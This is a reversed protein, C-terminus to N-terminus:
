LGSQRHLLLCYIGLWILGFGVTMLAFFALAGRPFFDEEPPKPKDINM